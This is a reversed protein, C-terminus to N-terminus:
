LFERHRHELWAEVLGALRGAERLLEHAQEEGVEDGEYSVSNRRRRCLDLYSLLTDSEPGLAVGAAEFVLQHHGVRARVRYGAALVAVTAM